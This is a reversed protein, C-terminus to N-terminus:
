RGVSGPLVAGRVDARVCAFGSFGYVSAAGIRAATPPPHGPTLGEGWWERAGRPM